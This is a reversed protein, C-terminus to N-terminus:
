SIICIAGKQFTLWGKKGIIIEALNKASQNGFFDFIRCLDITRTILLNYHVATEIINPPFPQDKKELSDATMFTNAILLGTLTSAERAERHDELKSVDQRTLNNNLGKIEVIMLKESNQMIWLDEESIGEIKTEFGMNKLFEDTANELSRDGLWLISKMKQYFSLNRRLPEIQDREIKEIEEKAGKEKVFKFQEVYIPPEATLKASYAVLGKALKDFHDILYRVDYAGWICPLFFLLGHEVKKSFGAVAERALCIVNDISSPDFGIETAGVDDIFPKFESRKVQLNRFVEREQITGYPINYLKLIGSVVYDKAHPGVICVIKGRELALGIENERRIANSPVAKLVPQCFSGQEFEYKFVGVSYIIIDFDALHGSFNKDAFFFQGSDLEVTQIGSFGLVVIKRNNTIGIGRL